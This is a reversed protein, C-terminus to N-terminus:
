NGHAAIQEKALKVLDGMVLHVDVLHLGWDPTLDGGIDDPRPDSPDGMVTVELFSYGDRAVCEGRLFNPLTVYPTSVAPLNPIIGSAARFYPSLAASGGGLAAPNNCVVTGTTGARPKGFRSNAPPGATSRFASFAVACGTDTPARCLPINQFDGGVDAGAPVVMDGGILLASVLKSRVEADGDIQEAILRRLMGTGQSHGILVFPRGKNLNALYYQWAKLVDGYAIARREEAPLTFQNPDVLSAITIQRYIPAYVACERSLRAAQERVVNKEPDNPVLDSNPAIDSSVTPYVYFCDASPNQVFVHPEVETMGDARLVTADMNERCFDSSASPLCLWLAPDSYDAITPGADANGPM